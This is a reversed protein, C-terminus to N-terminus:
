GAASMRRFSGLGVHEWSLFQKFCNIAEEQSEAKTGSFATERVILSIESDQYIGLKETEAKMNLVAQMCRSTKTSFISHPSEKPNPTVTGDLTKVMM